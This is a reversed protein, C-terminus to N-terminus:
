LGFNCDVGHGFCLHFSIFFYKVCFLKYLELDVRPEVTRSELMCM